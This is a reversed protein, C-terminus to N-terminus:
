SYSKYLSEKPMDFSGAVNKSLSSTVGGPAVLMVDVGLPRCEMQLTAAISHVTAKSAGYIGTWPTPILGTVSGILVFLGSRRSAMHPISAQALRLTGYVNTDFVRQVRDIQADLIAGSHLLSAAPLLTFPCPGGNLQAIM